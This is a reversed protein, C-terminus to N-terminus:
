LRPRLQRIEKELPNLVEESVDIGHEAAYKKVRTFTAEIEKMAKDIKEVDEETYDEILGDYDCFECGCSHYMDVKKWKLDTYKVRLEALQHPLNENFSM